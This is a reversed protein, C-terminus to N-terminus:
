KKKKDILMWKNGTSKKKDLWSKHLSTAVLLLVGVKVFECLTTGKIDCRKGVQHQLNVEEKILEYADYQYMQLKFVWVDGEFSKM